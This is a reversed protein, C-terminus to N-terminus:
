RQMPGWALRVAGVSSRHLSDQALRSDWMRLSVQEGVERNFESLARACMYSASARSKRM